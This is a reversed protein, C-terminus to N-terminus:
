QAGILRFIYLNKMFSKTQNYIQKFYFFHKNIINTQLNNWAYNLRIMQVPHSVFLKYSTSVYRRACSM